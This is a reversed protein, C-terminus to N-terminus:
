ANVAQCIQAPRYPKPLFVSNRPLYTPEAGSTMVLRLDPRALMALEGVECGNVSGPLNVDAVFVDIDSRENLRALAEVANAAQLVVHGSEALVEATADRIM